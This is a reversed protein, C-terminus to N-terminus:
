EKEKFSVVGNEVLKKLIGMGIEDIREEVRRDIVARVQEGFKKLLGSSDKDLREELEDAKREIRRIKQEINGPHWHEPEHLIKWGEDEGNPKSQELVKLMEAWLDDIRKNVAKQIIFLSIAEYLVALSIIFICFQIM